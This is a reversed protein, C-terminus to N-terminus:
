FVNYDTKMSLSTKMNLCRLVSIVKYGNVRISLERMVSICEKFDFYDCTAAVQEVV